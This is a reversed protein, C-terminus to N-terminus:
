CMVGLLLCNFNLILTFTYRIHLNFIYLFTLTRFNTIKKMKHAILFFSLGKSSKSLPFLSKNLSRLKAQPFGKLANKHLFGHIKKFSPFKKKSRRTKNKKYPCNKLGWLHLWRSFRKSFISFKSNFYLEAGEHARLEAGKKGQDKQGRQGPRM